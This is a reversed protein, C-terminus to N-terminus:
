ELNFDVDDKILKFMVRVLKNACHGLACYHSKGEDRKKQYYAEFTKNNLRVNNASWILIYRLLPNGRKSMRTSKAKWQGSQCIVPDLGAYAVVKSPSDFNILNNTVSLFVAIAYKNLGPISELHSHMDSVIEDIRKGIETIQDTYLEIQNM